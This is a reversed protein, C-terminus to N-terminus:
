VVMYGRGAQQTRFLFAALRDSHQLESPWGACLNKESCSRQNSLLTLHALIDAKANRPQWSCRVAYLSTTSFVMMGTSRHQRRNSSDSIPLSFASSWEIGSRCFFTTILWLAGPIGCGPTTDGAESTSWNPQM